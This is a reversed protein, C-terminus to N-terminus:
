GFIGKSRSWNISSIVSVVAMCLFSVSLVGSAIIARDWFKHSTSRIIDNQPVGDRDFVDVEFFKKLECSVAFGVGVGTALLLSIVKDGYFDFDPLSGHPILRKQQVAYYVAFPLQVIIYAASIVAVALVYRFAIVDQFRWKIAGDFFQVKDSVLIALATVSAALAFIRLVLMSNAVSKSVM